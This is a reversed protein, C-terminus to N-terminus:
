IKTFYQNPVVSKSERNQSVTTLVLKNDQIKFQFTYVVDNQSKIFLADERIYWEGSARTGDGLVQGYAGNALFTITKGTYASQMKVRLQPNAEMFDNVERDVEAFSSESDFFWSGVIRDSDNIQSQIPHLTLFFLVSYICIIPYTKKFKKM